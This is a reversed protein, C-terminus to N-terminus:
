LEVPKLRPALLHTVTFALLYVTGAIIFMALYSGTADKIRGASMQMLIGGVAGAMGGIGVVSGVARRPFMDSTLTFLNASFGQHAAAAIGIFTVALWMNSVVPALCVPLMCVACVLMATKRAANVSWGRKILHSSLWGGGVSGVDALLYIIVLPLGINKISVGFREAFFKGSWFLYFWWIPDTLFKGSAFAWTQRHPVLDRWRVKTEPEAGDANILALEAANVRPSEAPERYLPLWFFLWLLGILGTGVFAWQWGVGLVLAPVALPAIIAGVNSGANFIGTAFAREKRPFWEATTKIAAPFNGAEGLGLLFRAIAFGAVSDALAHGAAALSWVTLAIAYGARSGLRDILRGMLLFGIAYAFSFAANIDGYQTATWGIAKQLVPEMVGLVGRDMYNITTAFFLLACIVWRFRTPPAADTVPQKSTGPAPDM